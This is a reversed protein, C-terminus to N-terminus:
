EESLRALKPSSTNVGRLASEAQDAVESTPNLDISKRWFDKAKAPNDLKAAIAGAHYLMKANRIGVNLARDIRKRAQEYHGNRYLAWACADLTFVDQRREIEIRALRLAEEPNGAQDAYYFVLERNCNDSGNMEKRGLTEFKAFAARAQPARGAKKLAVALEYLNEPHPAAEFRKQFAEVAKGFRGQALCLRGLSALSYHYGPFLDLAQQIVLEALELKGASLHLNAIQTLVWARDEIEIPSTRHFASSMFEIAGEVDGFLERLYAGRTLAPVNGPRMNLMWQVAKEAKDYNGLETHADALFGYTLIDDPVRKHLKEAAELAGAFEHKGLLTWVRVRQAQFNKPSLELSIKLAAEAQDYYTPNGTERARRALAMALRNYPAFRAPDKEMAARAWRIQKEAPSLSEAPLTKTLFIFSLLVFIAILRPQM